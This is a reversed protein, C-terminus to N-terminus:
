FVPWESADFAFTWHDRGRLCRLRAFCFMAELPFPASDDRPVAILLRDGARGRLVDTRESLQHRLYPTRLEAPDLPEWQVREEGLPCLEGYLLPGLPATLSQSFRRRIRLADGEPEPVGIRLTEREGTAWVCWLGERLACSVDFVTYLRDPTVTLTGVQRGDELVPYKDM